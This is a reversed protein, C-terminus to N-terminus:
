SIVYETRIIITVRGLRKFPITAIVNKKEDVIKRLSSQLDVKRICLKNM